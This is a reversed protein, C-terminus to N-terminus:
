DWWWNLFQSPALLMTGLSVLSSVAYLVLYYICSRWRRVLLCLLFIVPWGFISFLSLLSFYSTAIYAHTILPVPFDREGISSPWAGISQHMHVALSYFLALMVVAPSIAALVTVGSHRAPRMLFAVVIAVLALIGALMAVLLM